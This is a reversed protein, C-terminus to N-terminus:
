LDYDQKSEINIEGTLLGELTQLYIDETKTLRGQPYQTREDKEKLAVYSMLNGAADQSISDRLASSLAASIQAILNESNEQWVVTARERKAARTKM